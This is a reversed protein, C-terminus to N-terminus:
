KALVVKKIITRNSYEAYILYVGTAANKNHLNKGNWHYVTTNESIKLRKVLRGNIDYIKLKKLERPNNVV